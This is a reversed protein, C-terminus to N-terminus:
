SSINKNDLAQIIIAANARIDWWPAVMFRVTVCIDEMTSSLVLWVVDPNKTGVGLYLERACQQLEEHAELHLFRRFALLLQWTCTEQLHVGRVAATMTKMVSRYTRHSHTYASETGVAGPGRRSLANTADVTDLNNLLVRFKPWVDDWIRRFMFGGFHIALSEVLSAAASVVFSEPDTLRNLIFPWAYHISPLLASEPLVPVSSALLSLIRARIIPSEHTLFYLSRSVIQKTLAQIPTPPPETNLESEQLAQDEEADTSRAEGWAKRPAPGYDTPDVEVESEHRHSYWHLIDDMSAPTEFENVEPPPRSSDSPPIKADEQIVNVVDGLVEVLGEVIVGYGHFEDLRDFCEEVVDGAREVIDSGVLRVLLSLVKTAEVEFWRRSLRRSISDLAYDFNSLLLNSPSAHSTMLTIFNLTALATSSLYIDSSVISRLVPYLAYILLPMFQVQLVGASIALLQLSLAGHLEPQKPPSTKKSISPRTIRLTEPVSNVGQVHQVLTNTNMDDENGLTPDEIQEGENIEDWLESINRALSCALKTLRKGRRTPIADSGGGQSISINAVGELLRCACWTATVSKKEKGNRGVSAFWEVAFLCGDGGAQGLARFMRQLANSTSSSFVNKFTVDPFPAWQSTDPNSELMLQASSMQSLTIPPKIIELVSLMSWGWKEIGGTPGLLKGIGTSISSLGTKNEGALSVLRCVAEVMGAVHEVKADAQTLLLRPLALINENATRLLTRQLSHQVKSPTMLIDLLLRRSEASVSLLESNSLSLLFHLLLPQADPLTMSTASIVEVSFKAFANLALPTPHSVIPTLTNLAILLQSSTGRLWSPTRHTSFPGIPPFNEHHKPGEALDELDVINQVAGEEACIDDGLAQVIGLKMVGLAAAVVEGKAWGKDTSIGLSIRTMHSIVGPLISPVIHHPAYTGIILSLIELSVLQLPLHATDASMLLSDITRGLIPLFKATQAHSVFIDRRAKALIPSHLINSNAESTRDRLLTLLCRSAAEKTEDARDRGKGKGEIGAIIAGCLMFIQEWVVEECYWWWDECLIALALFVKELIQDPIDSAINRRLLTSIPYFTYSIINPKLVLGSAKMERLIIIVEDLLQSVKPASVPSLLSSGLLPVCVEKLRKFYDQTQELNAM